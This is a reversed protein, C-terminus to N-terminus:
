DKPCLADLLAKKGQCFEIPLTKSKRENLCGGKCLYYHNCSLCQANQKYSLKIFAKMMENKYFNNQDYDQISCCRWQETAFHICPYLNGQWDFTLKGQCIGNIECSVQQKQLHKKVEDFPYVYEFLGDKSSNVSYTGSSSGGHGADLGILVKAM